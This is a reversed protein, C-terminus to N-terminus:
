EPGTDVLVDTKALWRSEYQAQITNRTDDLSLSLYDLKRFLQIYYQSCTCSVRFKNTLSFMVMWYLVANQDHRKHRRSMEMWWRMMMLMLMMMLIWRSVNAVLLLAAASPLPSASACSPASARYLHRIPWAIYIALASHKHARRISGTEMTQLTHMDESSQRQSSSNFYECTGASGASYSTSWVAWRM